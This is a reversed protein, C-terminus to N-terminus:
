GRGFGCRVVRGHVAGGDPKAELPRVAARTEAFAFVHQSSIGIELQEEIGRADGPAVRQNPDSSICRRDFIEVALVSREDGIATEVRWRLQSSPSRIRMPETWNVNLATRVGAEVRVSGWASPHAM